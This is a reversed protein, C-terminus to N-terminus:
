RWILWATELAHAIELNPIGLGRISRRECVENRAEAVM